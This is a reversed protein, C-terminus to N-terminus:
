PAAGQSTGQEARAEALVSQIFEAKAEAYGELDAAYKDALVRKIEEYRKAVHPNRWLYNRFLIHRDWEEHTAEYMHLHHTRSVGVYTQGPAPDDTLKRFFLRGPIGAEGRYEYGLSELPGICSEGDALRRLGIAIDIIPKAALEPVATSGVHQIDIAWEGIVDLIRAKEEEFLPRWRPDYDAIEVRSM